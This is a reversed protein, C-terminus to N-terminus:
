NLWFKWRTDTKPRATLAFRIESLNIKKHFTKRPTHLFLKFKKPVHQDFSCFLISGTVSDYPEIRMPFKMLDDVPVKSRRIFFQNKHVHQELHFSATKKWIIKKNKPIPNSITVPVSSKNDITVQLLILYYHENGLKDGSEMIYSESNNKAWINFRIKDLTPYIKIKPRENLYKILQMILGISGTVAGIIATIDTPSLKPLTFLM